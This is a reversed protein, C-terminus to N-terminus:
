LPPTTAAPPPRYPAVSNGEVSFYGAVPDDPLGRLAAVLATATGGPTALSKGPQAANAGPVGSVAPPVDVFAIRQQVAIARTWVEDRSQEAADDMVPACLIPTAGHAIVEVAFRRLYWGYSRVVDNGQQSTPEAVRQADDSVGPLSDAVADSGGSRGFQILVFDGPRVMALTVAWSGGEITRRMGNGAGSRDVVHIKAPDLFRGLSSAVAPDGNGVVFLTPSAPNGAGPGSGVQSVATGCLLGFIGVSVLVVSLRRLDAM